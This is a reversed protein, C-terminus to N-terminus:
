NPVAPDANVIVYRDRGANKAEYLAQDARSILAQSTGRKAQPYTVAIGFSLSLWQSTPAGRHEIKLAAIAQQMTIVIHIAGSRNTGPLVIVFEEGGYRAVLDVARNVSGTLAAAVQTLCKDGAPHGYYDNYRKFHDIDCLILTLPKAAPDRVFHNWTQALFKDFQRRNALQTLSDHTALYQLKENAQQLQEYLVSQQIAIALQDSVSGAVEIDESQWPTGDQYRILVLTGWIQSDFHLPVMLLAAPAHRMIFEPLGPPIPHNNDVQAINFQKLQVAMPNNRDPLSKFARRQPTKGCKEAVRQWYERQENHQYIVVSDVQLLHAVEEVAREFVESLNLSQRISQVVRNLAQEREVRLRLKAEIQKLPTIDRVMALVRDGEMPVCRVEEYQIFCDGFHNVAQEYRQIKRTELAQQITEIKKQAVDYPILSLLSRGVPNIYSPALDRSTFGSVVDLVVGERSVIDILDPLVALIAQNRAQSEELAIEAQKKETVDVNVITAMWCQATEDWTPNVMARIWRIRDSRDYFRFEHQHIQGAFTKDFSPLIVAQFDESHVRSAWLDQNEVLETHTYGYVSESGASCYDFEWRRDLYVRLQVISAAAHNLLQQLQAESQQQAIAAQRLDTIDISNAIVGEVEGKLNFFPAIHSRYWRTEGSASTLPEEEILVSQQTEIVTLNVAVMRECWAQTFNANFEYELRGKMQEVPVGHLGAAAANAIIARGSRDRVFVVSPIGDLIPLLLRQYQRAELRTIHQQQRYITYVLLGVGLISLGIWVITTVEM